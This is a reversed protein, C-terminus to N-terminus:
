LACRGFVALNNQPQTLLRPAPRDLEATHHHLVICCLVISYLLRLLECRGFVALNNRPQALMARLAREIRRRDTSYLDFPCFGSAPDGPRRKLPEQV